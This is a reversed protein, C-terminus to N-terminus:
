AQSLHSSSNSLTAMNSSRTQNSKELESRKKWCFLNRVQRQCEPSAYYYILPDICCNITGVSSALMYAFTLVELRQDSSLFINQVLALINAPGFCIIFSCLVAASLLIARRRRGPKEAIIRSSSLKRIICVYCSVSIILPVFFFFVSLASFYYRLIDLVVSEELVDHCTTINLQPIRKTQETILLPIVGAIAVLWIVCCAVSARRVTRWSLAQMPYMLALFRDISIVTMLLISCYMNCYFSAIVLRCMQPGFIWNHRSFHYSIKFPLTTVFLVDASALNLMYVFAPKKLKLRIVFMLIAMFNLPLSLIIVLIHVSPVFWILWASTLYREADNSIVINEKSQNIDSKYDIKPDYFTFIASQLLIDPDLSSNKARATSFLTCSISFVPFLMQLFLCM